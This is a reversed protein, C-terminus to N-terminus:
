RDVVDKVTGATPTTNTGDGLQGRANHGFCQLRSPTGTVEILCTHTGGTSFPGPTNGGLLV